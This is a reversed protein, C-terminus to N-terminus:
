LNQTNGGYARKKKREREQARTKKKKGEDYKNRHISESYSIEILANERIYM